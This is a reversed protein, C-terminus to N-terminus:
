LAPKVKSGTPVPVRSVEQFSLEVDAPDDDPSVTRRLVIVDVGRYVARLEAGSGNQVCSLVTVIDGGNGAVPACPAAVTGMPYSQSAGHHDTVELFINTRPASSAPDYGTAGWGILLQATIVPGASGSGSGEGSEVPTTSSKKGGCAACALAVSVALVAHSM